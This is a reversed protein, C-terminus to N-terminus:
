EVETKRHVKSQVSHRSRPLDAMDGTTVVPLQPTVTDNKEEKKCGSLLLGATLLLAPSLFTISHVNRLRMM